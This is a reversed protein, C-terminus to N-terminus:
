AEADLAAPASAPCCCAEPSAPAEAPPASLTVSMSKSSTFYRKRNISIIVAAGKPLPQKKALTLAQLCRISFGYTRTAGTSPTVETPSFDFFWAYIGTVSSSWVYSHVSVLTPAATDRQRCGAAPFYGAPACFATVSFPLFSCPVSARLLLLPQKCVIGQLSSSPPRRKTRWCFCRMM